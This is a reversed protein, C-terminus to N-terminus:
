KDIKVSDLIGKIETRTGNKEDARTDAIFMFYFDRKKIPVVWVESCAHFVRNDALVIDYSTKLYSAKHDAVTTETPEVEVKSNLDKSFRIIDNGINTPNDAPFNGLPLVRIKLSPNLDDLPEAYKTLVMLPVPSKELLKHLEEDKLKTDRVNELFQNGSMFHWDTPKTVNIGLASNSYVNTDAAFGGVPLFFLLSIFLRKM